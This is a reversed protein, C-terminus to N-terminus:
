DKSGSIDHGNELSIQHKFGVEICRSIVFRYYADRYTRPFVWGVFLPYCWIPLREFLRSRTSASPAVLKKVEPHKGCLIALAEGAIRSRELITRRNVRHDHYAVANAAYLIRLGKQKLRYALEIDEWAAYPFDEDFLGHNQLFRRKVSVNSTYFYNFPVNEPDKITGYGFQVGSSELWRMLNTIRIEPSWTVHGLVAIHDGSYRAHLESHRKILDATAIIDDGLFLLINGKAHTIGVNRASAPGRNRQAVLRLMGVPDNQLSRVMEETGDTSGDDVIIIEYESRPYTQGTLALICKRLVNKRNYTPIIVSIDM